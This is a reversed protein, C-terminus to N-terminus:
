GLASLLKSCERLGYAEAASTLQRAAPQVQQLLGLAQLPQSGRLTSAAEGIADVV